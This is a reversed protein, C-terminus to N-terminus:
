HAAADQSDWSGRADDDDDGSACPNEADGALADDSGGLADGSGGLADGSGGRAVIRRKSRPVAALACDVYYELRFHLSLEYGRERKSEVTRINHRWLLGFAIASPRSAFPGTIAAIRYGQQMADPEKAPERRMNELTYVDIAPAPRAAASSHQTAAGAFADKQAAVSSGKHAASPPANETEMFALPETDDLMETVTLVDVVRTASRLRAYPDMRGAATDPRARKRRAAVVAADAASAPRRLTAGNLMDVGAIPFQSVFVDTRWSSVSADGTGHDRVTLFAYWSSAVAM